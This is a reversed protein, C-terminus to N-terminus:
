SPVLHVCKCMWLVTAFNKKEGQIVCKDRNKLAVHYLFLQLM